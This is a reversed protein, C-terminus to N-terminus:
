MAASRYICFGSLTVPTEGPPVGMGREKTAAVSKDSLQILGASRVEVFQVRAPNLAVSSVGPTEGTIEFEEGDM